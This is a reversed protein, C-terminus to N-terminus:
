LSFLRQEPHTVIFEKIIFCFRIMEVIYEALYNLFYYTSSDTEDIVGCIYFYRKNHIIM